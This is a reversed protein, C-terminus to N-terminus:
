FIDELREPPIFLKVKIAPPTLVICRLDKYNRRHRLIGRWFTQFPQLVFIRKSLLQIGSPRGARHFNSAM